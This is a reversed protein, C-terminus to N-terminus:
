RSLRWSFVDFVFLCMRCVLLSDDESTNPDDSNLFSQPVPGFHFIIHCSFASQWEPSSVKAVVSMIPVFPSVQIPRPSCIPHYSCKWTLQKINLSIQPQLPSRGEPSVCVSTKVPSRADHWCRIWLHNLFPFLAQLRETFNLNNECKWFCLFSICCQTLTVETVPSVTANAWAIKSLSWNVNHKNKPRLIIKCGSGKVMQLSKLAQQMASQHVSVLNAM